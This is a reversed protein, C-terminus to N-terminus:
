PRFVRNGILPKEPRLEIKSAINIKVLLISTIKVINLACPCIDLICTIINIIEKVGINHVMTLKQNIPIMNFKVGRLKKNIIINILIPNEISAEIPRNYYSPGTNLICGEIYSSIM